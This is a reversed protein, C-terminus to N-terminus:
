DFPLKDIIQELKAQKNAARKIYNAIKKLSEDAYEAKANLFNNFRYYNLGIDEAIHKKSPYDYLEFYEFMAARVRDNKLKNM